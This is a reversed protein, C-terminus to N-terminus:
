KHLNTGIHLFDPWKISKSQLYPQNFFGATQNASLMKAWIEPVDIKGFMPNTCFCLLYNLNENCILDLLNFFHGMKPEKEWYQLFFNKGLFDPERVWIEHTELVM